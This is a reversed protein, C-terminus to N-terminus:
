LCGVFMFAYFLVVYGAYRTVTRLGRKVSRLMRRADSPHPYRYLAQSPNQYTM